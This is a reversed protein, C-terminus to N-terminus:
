NVYTMNHCRLKLSNLILKAQVWRHVRRHTRAWPPLHTLGGGWNSLNGYYREIDDRQKLLSDGFTPFPNELIEKSRIRGSTQKRHGHGRGRGYRRRAVLQLNGRQDCVDHLPNSDYNKDALVYGQINANLLM